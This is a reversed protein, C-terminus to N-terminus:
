LLRNLNNKKITTAQSHLKYILKGLKEKSPEPLNNNGSDAGINIWDPKAINILEILEKEDFDMIPEITLMTKFGLERLVLLCEARMLPTNAGSGMEPYTRNTEITTGIVCNKPFSLRSKIIREPNKSQFLYNNTPYKKCHKLTKNIWEQPIPNAFMDCSSGVFIFNNEGLNTKLESEVLRTPNLPFRKMYCYKCNISCIGKIANWTFNVFEYMNGKVKNM